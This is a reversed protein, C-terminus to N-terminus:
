RSQLTKLSVQVLGRAKDKVHRDKHWCISAASYINALHTFPENIENIDDERSAQDASKFQTAGLAHLPSM